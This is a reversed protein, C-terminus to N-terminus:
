RPRAPAVCAPADNAPSNVLSPVEYAELADAPCPGLARGLEFRGAAPDLWLDEADRGLVAPMREHIPRLTENAPVTVIAFSRLAQGLPGTWEDWLGAMAFLGRDRRAVRMPVRGGGIRAWEYFGDAVVLCRRRRFPERFSPLRELSEARANILKRAAALDKTWAPVLGWRCLVLRRGGELVVVPAEQSPAINYRPKLEDPAADLRFRATLTKLALTQTYRGCM